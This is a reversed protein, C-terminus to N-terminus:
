KLVRNKTFLLKVRVSVKNTYKSEFRFMALGIGFLAPVVKYWLRTYLYDM